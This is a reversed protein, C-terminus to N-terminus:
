HPSAARKTPEPKRTNLIWWILFVVIAVNVLIVILHLLTFHHAATYLEVPIYVGGSIAGFWEAWRREHWLGYAEALRLAAYCLSGGALLWLRTDTLQSALKLFVGPYHHSPNLHLFLVVNEALAQIDQHLLALLGAGALLVLVGKTAELVAIARLGIASKLHFM